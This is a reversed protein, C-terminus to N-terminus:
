RRLTLSSLTLFPKELKIKKKFISFTSMRTFNMVLYIVISFNHFNKHLKTIMNKVYSFYSILM